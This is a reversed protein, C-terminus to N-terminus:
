RNQNVILRFVKWEGDPQKKFLVLERSNVVEIKGTDPNKETGKVTGIGYAYDGLLRTEHHEIDYDSEPDKWYKGMEAIIEDKGNLTKHGRFLAQVNEDMLGLWGEFNGSNIAATAKAPIAKIKELDAEPDPNELPSGHGVICQWKGGSKLWVNTFRSHHIQKQGYADEWTVNFAGTVDALDKRLLTVQVDELSYSLIPNANQNIDTLLEDKTQLRGTASQFIFDPAFLDMINSADANKIAESWATTYQKLIGSVKDVTKQDVPGRNQQCSQIGTVSMIILIIFLKKM